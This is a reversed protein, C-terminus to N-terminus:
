LCLIEEETLDDVQRPDIGKIMAALQKTSLEANHVIHWKNDKLWNFFIWACCDKCHERKKEVYAIGDLGDLIKHKACQIDICFTGSRYEQSMKAGREFCNVQM